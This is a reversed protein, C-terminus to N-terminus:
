ISKVTNDNQIDVCLNKTEDKTYIKEIQDILQLFQVLPIKQKSLLAHLQILNPLSPSKPNTWKSITVESAGDFVLEKNNGKTVKLVYLALSVAFSFSTDPLPKNFAKM